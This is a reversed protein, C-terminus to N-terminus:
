GSDRLRRLSCSVSCECWWMKGQNRKERAKFTTVGPAPQEAMPSSSAESSVSM